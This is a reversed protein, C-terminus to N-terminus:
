RATQSKPSQPKIESFVIFPIQKLRLFRATRAFKTKGRQKLIHALSPIETLLYKQREEFYEPKKVSGDFLSRYKELTELFGRDDGLIAQSEALVHVLYKASHDHPLQSLAQLCTTRIHERSAHSWRPSSWVYNTVMWMQVGPRQTWESFHNAAQAKRGLSLICYGVQAWIEVNPYVSPQNKKWYNIVERHYGRAALEHLLVAIRRGDTSQAHLGQLISIV